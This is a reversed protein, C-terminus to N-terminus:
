PKEKCCPPAVHGEAVAAVSPTQGLLRSPVLTARGALTWLGVVVMAGCALPQLRPGLAGSLSRIGAGLAVMVPLTGVWFAAMSAAGAVPSATGAAAAVFVYLWGCPLLTTLLGILGARAVPGRRMAVQYGLGALGALFAPPRFGVKRGTWRLYSIVGFTVMMGGALLAAVPRLGALASGLDLARGLAGAAVGLSLYTALRGLHYAAQTAVRGKSDGLAIALFAGCMGACHLSGLVSSIFITVAAALM